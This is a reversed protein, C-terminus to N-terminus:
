RCSITVKLNPADARGFIPSQGNMTWNIVGDADSSAQNPGFTAVVAIPSSFSITQKEPLAIGGGGLVTAFTLTAGSQSPNDVLQLHITGSGADRSTRIQYVFRIVGQYQSGTGREVPDSHTASIVSLGCEADVQLALRSSTSEAAVRSALSVLLILAAEVEAARRKRPM